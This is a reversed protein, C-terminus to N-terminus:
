KGKRITEVRAQVQEKLKPGLFEGGFYDLKAALAVKAALARAARGRLRPPTQHVLPHQYLAGHKPPKAGSRLHRFLAAEAGLLQVASSPMRALREQGGALALLRAGLVPGAVAAVNPATQGMLTEIHRALREQETGAAAALQALEVMAKVATPEPEVGLSEGAELGHAEALTERDPGEALAKALTAPRVRAAVEPLSLGEWQAVREGLLNAVEVLEDSAAVAQLVQLDAGQASRARQRGLDLVAQHLLGPEFGLLNALEVPDYGSPENVLEGLGELRVECVGLGPGAEVALEREVELVEGAALVALRQALTAPDRAVEVVRVPRDQEWLLSACWTTLLYM